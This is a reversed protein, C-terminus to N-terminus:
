TSFIVTGTLASCNQLNTANGLVYMEGNSGIRINAPYYTATAWSGVGRAFVPCDVTLAPRYGSPITCILDYGTATSFTSGSVTINVPIEVIMGRKYASVSQTVGAYSLTLSAASNGNLTSIDSEHEAIAGTITTATTGMTTSGIKTNLGDIAAKPTQASGALTAGNYSTLAYNSVADVDIKGSQSSNEGYVVTGSAPTLAPLESITTTSM